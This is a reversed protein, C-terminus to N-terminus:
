LAVAKPYERIVLYGPWEDTNGGKKSTLRRPARSVKREATDHLVGHWHGVEAAKEKSVAAGVIGNVADLYQAGLQKVFLATRGQCQAILSELWKSDFPRAASGSEGGVVIWDLDVKETICTEPRDLDYDGDRYVSKQAPCDRCGDEIDCRECGDDDGRLWPRFDVPGLAPEYSVWRVAAPCQLLLPIREDATAQDEVSVGLWVNPLPWAGLGDAEALVVVSKPVPRGANLLEARAAWAAAHAEQYRTLWELMREPRKTVIQYTHHPSAAMVGFVSAIYEDSVDEHFLDSMSNVFVMAPKRWSLPEALKAPVTVVKRSWDGRENTFGEFPQGPGSFRHAISKAFCNRCGESVPTCGRLPNWSKDTWEINSQGM